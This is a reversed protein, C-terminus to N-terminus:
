SALFKRAADMLQESSKSYIMSNFLEGSVIEGRKEPSMSGLARAVENMMENRQDESREVGMEGLSEKILESMRRLRQEFHMRSQPGPEGKEEQLGKM